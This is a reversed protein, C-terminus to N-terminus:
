RRPAGRELVDPDGDGVFMVDVDSSYNLEDGGLKGMGIVALGAAGALDCCADLVECAMPSLAATTVALDDLGVLDRAAIRLLERRKWAVLEGIAGPPPPTRRALDDIVDLAVPDSVLLRTLSRSAATVAVLADAATASSLRGLAEPFREFLRDLALRAADPDASREVRVDLDGPPRTPVVPRSPM